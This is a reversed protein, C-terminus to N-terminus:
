SRKEMASLPRVGASFSEVNAEAEEARGETAVSCLGDEVRPEVMSRIGIAAGSGVTCAVKEGLRSRFGPAAKQCTM